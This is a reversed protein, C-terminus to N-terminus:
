LDACRDQNFANVDRRIASSCQSSDYETVTVDACFSLNRYGM